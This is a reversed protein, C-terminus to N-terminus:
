KASYSGVTGSINTANGEITNNGRSLFVAPSAFVLIGFNFNNTVTSNSLRVTAAGTSTTASSVGTTNNSAVCNEINLEAPASSESFATFGGVNGSSVSNRVTVTAGEHVNLGAGTNGEFRVNDISGFASGAPPLVLIGQTNGRFFSDKVQLNGPGLFALGSSNPIGINFGNVVCGEVHLRGGSHFLIGHGNSGQNVITLGRLVITDGDNAIINIGNGSSVAIGAYVGPPSVLSVAASITVTGYGASDLAIVEGGAATAVIARAFTRCPATRSCSNGDDGLGSVFTRPAQAHSASSYILLMLM